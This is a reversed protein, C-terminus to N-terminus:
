SYSREAHKADNEEPERARVSARGSVRYEWAFLPASKAIAAGCCKEIRNLKTIHTASSMFKRRRARASMAETHRGAAPKVRENPSYQHRNIERITRYCTQRVRNLEGPVDAGADNDHMDGVEARHHHGCRVAVITRPSTDFCRLVLTTVLHFTEQAADIEVTDRDIAASNGSVAGACNM